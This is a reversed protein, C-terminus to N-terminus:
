ENKLAHQTLKLQLGNGEVTSPLSSIKFRSLIQDNAIYLLGGLQNRLDHYSQWTTEEPLKTAMLNFNKGESFKQKILKRAFDVQDKDTADIFILTKSLPSAQQPNFRTGAAAILRGDPLTVDEEVIFSPDYVISSTVNAKPLTTYKQHKWIAEVGKKALSQFDIKGIRLKLDEVFDMEAIPYTEGAKPLKGTNGSDLKNLVYDINVSGSLVAYDSMYSVSISPVTTIKYKSFPRPDIAVDPSLKSKARAVAISRLSDNLNKSPLLGRVVVKANHKAASDFAEIILSEPMSTSIYVYIEKKSADKISALECSTLNTSDDCTDTPTTPINIGELYKKVDHSPSNSKYTKGSKLGEISKNADDILKDSDQEYNNDNQNGKQITKTLIDASKDLYEPGTMVEAIAPIASSLM